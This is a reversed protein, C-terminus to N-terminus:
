IANKVSRFAAIPQTPKKQKKKKPKSIQLQNGSGNELQLAKVLKLTLLLGALM